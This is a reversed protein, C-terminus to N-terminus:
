SRTGVRFDHTGLGLEKGELRKLYMTLRYSGEPLPNAQKFTVFGKEGIPKVDEGVVANNTPDNLVIRMESGSPANRVYLSIVATSGPPIVSTEKVVIGDADTATGFRFHDVYLETRSSTPIDDAAKSVVVRRAPAGDKKSGGGDQAENRKSGGCSVFAAALMLVLVRPPKM